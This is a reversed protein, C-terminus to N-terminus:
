KLYSEGLLANDGRGSRTYLRKSSLFIVRHAMASRSVPIVVVLLIGGRHLPLSLSLPHSSSCTQSFFVFAHETYRRRFIYRSFTPFFRWAQQLECLRFNLGFHRKAFNLFKYSTMNLGSTIEWKKSTYIECVVRLAIM